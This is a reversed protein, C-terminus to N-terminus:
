LAPVYNHEISYQRFLHWFQARMENSQDKVNYYWVSCYDFIYKRVKQLGAIIQHPLPEPDDLFIEISDLKSLSRSCFWLRLNTSSPEREAVIPNLAVGSVKTIYKSIYSAINKSNSVSRVDVTNPSDWGSAVGLSYRSWLINRETKGTNNYLSCYESFDMKSFKEQYRSIYGLKKLCRNWILKCDQYDLFTDTAIHYHANGNAQYELRWVYNELNFKQKCETLFQNLCNATIDATAHTQLAPLTLTIFNMKFNILVKNNKTTLTKNRALEYLWTVKERVRNQAKKSIEFNHENSKTIPMRGIGWELMQAKTEATIIPKEFTKEKQPKIVQTYFVIKNPRLSAKKIFTYNKFDNM